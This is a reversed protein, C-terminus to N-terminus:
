GDIVHAGDVIVASTPALLTRGAGPLHVTEPVFGPNVAVVGNPYVRTWVGGRVVAPDCACPAGLSRRYLPASPDGPAGYASDPTAILLFSALGFVRQAQGLAAGGTDFVYSNVLKAWAAQYFRFASQWAPGSLRAFGTGGDVAYTGNIERTAVATVPPMRGVLELPTTQAAFTGRILELAHAVAQRRRGEGLPGGTVPDIPVGSLQPDNGLDVVDVGTWGDPTLQNVIREAWAVDFAANGVNMLVQDPDGAPHVEGGSATRMIWGPHHIRLWSVRFVADACTDCAYMLSRQQWIVTMRADPVAEMALPLRGWGRTGIVVAYRRAICLARARSPVQAPRIALSIRPQPLSRCSPPAADHDGGGCGAAVLAALLTLAILARM